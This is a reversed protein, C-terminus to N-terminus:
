RQRVEDRASELRGFPRALSGDRADNGDPAVYLTTGAQGWAALAALSLLPIRM